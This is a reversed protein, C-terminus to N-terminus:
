NFAPADDASRDIQDNNSDNDVPASSVPQQQPSVWGNADVNFQAGRQSMLKQNAVDTHFFKQVYHQAGDIDYLRTPVADPNSGILEVRSVNITISAKMCRDKESSYIRTKANGIVFVTQGQKIFEAVKPRDNMICDVWQTSTHQQGAQDTWTDNHAVRFTTFQRGDKELTKADAGVNGILIAQLM